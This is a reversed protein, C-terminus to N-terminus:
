KFRRDSRIRQVKPANGQMPVLDKKTTMNRINAIQIQESHEKGKKGKMGQIIVSHGQLVSIFNVKKFWRHKKFICKSISKSGEAKVLITVTLKYFIRLYNKEAVKVSLVRGQAQTLRDGYRKLYAQTYSNTIKDKFGM